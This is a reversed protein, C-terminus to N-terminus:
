VTKFGDDICTIDLYHDVHKWCDCGQGPGPGTPFGPDVPEVIDCRLKTLVLIILFKKGQMLLLM